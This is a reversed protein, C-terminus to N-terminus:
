SLRKALFTQAVLHGMQSLFTLSYEACYKSCTNVAKVKTYAKSSGALHGRSEDKQLTEFKCIDTNLYSTEACTFLKFWDDIKLLFDIEHLM